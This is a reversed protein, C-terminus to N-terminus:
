LTLFFCVVPDLHDISNEEGDEEKLQLIHFKSHIEDFILILTL